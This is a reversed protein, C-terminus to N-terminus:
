RRWHQSADIRLSTDEVFFLSTRGVSVLIERLARDLLARKGHSYEEAYPDGKSKFHQLLLGVAEFVLRAQLFKEINSTYFFVELRRPNALFAERLAPRDPPRNLPAFSPRFQPGRM